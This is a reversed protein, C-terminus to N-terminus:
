KQAIVFGVGMEDLYKFAEHKEYGSDAALRLKVGLRKLEPIIVKLDSLFGNSCHVSGKRLEVKLLTKTERVSWVQLQHCRANRKEPNYGKEAGEQNEYLTSATADVDITITKLDKRRIEQCLIWLSYRFLIRKLYVHADSINRKLFYILTTFHPVRDAKFLKSFLEDNTRIRYHYMRISGDILQLLMLLIFESVLYDILRQDRRDHFEEDIIEKM